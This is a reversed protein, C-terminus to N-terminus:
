TKIINGDWMHLGSFSEKVKILCNQKFRFPFFFLFFLFSFSQILGLRKEIGFM